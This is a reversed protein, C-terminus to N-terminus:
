KRHKPRSRPRGRPRSHHRGRPRSRHRSCPRSRPRSHPRGRPRSHPRGRPRRHKSKSSSKRSYRSSKHHINSRKSKYKKSNFRQAPKTTKKYQDLLKDLELIDRYLDAEKDTLYEISLWREDFYHDDGAIKIDQEIKRQQIKLDEIDLKKQDCITRLKDLIAEDEYKDSPKIIFHRSMDGIGNHWDDNRIADRIDDLFYEREENEDM